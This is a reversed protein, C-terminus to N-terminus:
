SSTIINFLALPVSLEGDRWLTYANNKSSLCVKWLCELSLVADFAVHNADHATQALWVASATTLVDINTLRRCVASSSARCLARISVSSCFDLCRDGFNCCFLPTASNNVIQCHKGARKLPAGILGLKESALPAFPSVNICSSM